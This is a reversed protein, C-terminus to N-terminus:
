FQKKPDGNKPKQITTKIFVITQHSIEFPKKLFASKLTTQKQM